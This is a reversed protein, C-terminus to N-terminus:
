ALILVALPAHPGLAILEFGMMGAVSLPLKELIERAEPRNPANMIFIVGCGDTQCFWQEIKVLLTTAFLLVPPSSEGRKNNLWCTHDRDGPAVDKCSGSFDAPRYLGTQQRRRRCDLVLDRRYQVSTFADLPAAPGSHIIVVPRNELGINGVTPLTLHQTIDDAPVDIQLRVALSEPQRDRPRRLAEVRRTAPPMSTASRM